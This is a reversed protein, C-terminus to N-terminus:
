KKFENLKNKTFDSLALNGSIKAREFLLTEWHQTDKWFIKKIETLSERNYESLKSAFDTVKEDLLDISEFVEQFLNNQLAWNCNQWVTPNYSLNQAAIIGIKRSVAPEIVFPGFGLSLESLKVSVNTNVFAYDSAAIIGVGGGVANGQVRTIIPIKCNKMALIVKAFGSFFKEADTSTQIQLLEDFSAGACFAKEGSSKLIIVNIAENNSLQNLLFSLEELMKSTFSNSKPHSFIITAIKNTFNVEINNNIM